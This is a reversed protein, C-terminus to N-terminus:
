TSPAAEDAAPPTRPAQGCPDARQRHQPGTPPLPRARRLRAVLTRRAEDAAAPRRSPARAEVEPSERRRKRHAKAPRGAVADFALELGHLEAAEKAAKVQLAEFCVDVETLVRGKSGVLRTSWKQSWKAYLENLPTLVGHRRFRQGKEVDLVKCFLEVLRGKWANQLLKTFDALRRSFDLDGRFKLRLRASEKHTLDGLRRLKDIHLGAGEFKPLVDYLNATTLHKSQTQYPKLDSEFEVFGEGGQPAADARASTGHPQPERPERRERPERELALGQQLLSNFDLGSM